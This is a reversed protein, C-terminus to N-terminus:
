GDSRRTGAIIALQEGLLAETIEARDAAQEPTDPEWARGARAANETVMSALIAEYDAM